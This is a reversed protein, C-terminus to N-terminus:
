KNRRFLSDGQKSNTKEIKMLGSVFGFDLKLTSTYISHLNSTHNSKQGLNSIPPIPEINSTYITALLFDSTFFFFLVIYKSSFNNSSKEFNTLLVFFRWTFNEISIHSFDNITVFFFHAPM